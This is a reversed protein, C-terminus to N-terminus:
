NDLMRLRFAHLDKLLADPSLSALEEPSSIGTAVAIALIRNAQAALVDNPSDGVLGIRTHRDIWGARRAQRVALRVLGARNASMEGFAGFRFYRKLGAREVKKWGIRTLNGTVLGMLVGRRQLRELLRRVGPCTKRKLSPCRRLYRSQADQLIQPLARRILAKSAGARRMMETLIDPDLMGHLPIHDTSTELGTAQRVAEVLVERHHPGSRRILTGDIDFLVLSRAPKLTKAPM